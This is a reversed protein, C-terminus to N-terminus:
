IECLSLQHFFLRSSYRIVCGSKGNMSVVMNLSMQVWMARLGLGVVM